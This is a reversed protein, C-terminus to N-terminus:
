SELAMAAKFMDRCAAIAEHNSGATKVYEACALHREHMAEDGLLALEDLAQAFPATNELSLDWGVGSDELNRWPTQDSIVAPLGAGLAESIAHGFNEGLSPLLFCDYAALIQPISSPEVAGIERVSKDAPLEAIQEECLRWYDADESPGILDLSAPQQMGAVARIAFTINKMPSIRGLLAIRLPSGAQRSQWDKVAPNDSHAINPVIAIQGGSKTIFRRSVANEIATREATATAQWVLRNLLGSAKLGALYARKPMAKLGLAGPNLQGRVALVTPIRAIRGLRGLALVRVPFYTDMLSNLYLVDPGTEAILSQLRAMTVTEPPLYIVRGKGVATWRDPEVDPYVEEARFDRDLTVIRFDFEDGLAEVLNSLTRVPGGARYGPLYTRCFVMIIPRFSM